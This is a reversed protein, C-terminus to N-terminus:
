SCNCFDKNGIPCKVFFSTRCIAFFFSKIVACFFSECPNHKTPFIHGYILPSKDLFNLKLKKLIKKRVPITLITHGIGGGSKLTKSKCNLIIELNRNLTNSASGPSATHIITM